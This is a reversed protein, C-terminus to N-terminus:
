LILVTCPFVMWFWPWTEYDLVFVDHFAEHLALLALLAYLAETAWYVKFYVQYDNRATLRAFTNLISFGVYVFFLPYKKYLNRVVLLIALGLALATGLAILLLGSREM